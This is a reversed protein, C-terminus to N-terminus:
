YICDTLKWFRLNTVGRSVSNQILYRSFRKLYCLPCQLLKTTAVNKYFSKISVRWIKLNHDDIVMLLISPFIIFFILNLVSKLVYTVWIEHNRSRQGTSHRTNFFLAELILCFTSWFHEKNHSFYASNNGNM